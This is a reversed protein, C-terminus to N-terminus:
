SYIYKWLAYSEIFRFINYLTRMSSRTHMFNIRSILFHQFSVYFSTLTSLRKDPIERIWFPGTCPFANDATIKLKANSYAKIFIWSFWACSFNFLVCDAEEKHQHRSRSPPLMSDILVFLSVEISALLSTPRSTSASFLLYM